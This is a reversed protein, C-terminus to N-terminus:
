QRFTQHCSICYNMTRNLAKLSNVTNRTKLVEGLEDASQHFAIGVAQFDPNDMMSCMKQM